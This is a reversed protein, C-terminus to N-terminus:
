KGRGKARKIVKIFDYIMLIYFLISMWFIYLYLIIIINNISNFNFQSILVYIGINLLSLAVVGYAKYFVKDLFNNKFLSNIYDVNLLAFIISIGSFVFGAITASITTLTELSEEVSNIDVYKTTIVFIASLILVYAITRYIYLQKYNKRKSIFFSYIGLVFLLGCLLASIGWRM